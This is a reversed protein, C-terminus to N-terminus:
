RGRGSNPTCTLSLILFIHATFDYIGCCGRGSNPASSICMYVVATWGAMIRRHIEKEQKEGGHQGMFVYGEVNEILVDNLNMQHYVAIVKTKTNNIKLGM